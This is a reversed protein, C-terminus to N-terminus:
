NLFQSLWNSVNTFCQFSDIRSFCHQESHFCLQLFIIYLYLFYSGLAWLKTGCINHHVHLKSCNYCRQRNPIAAGSQLHESLSLECTLFVQERSHFHFNTTTAINPFVSLDLDTVLIDGKFYWQFKVIHFLHFDCIWLLFFFQLSWSFTQNGRKTELVFYPWVSVFLFPTGDSIDTLIVKLINNPLKFFQRIFTILPLPRFM